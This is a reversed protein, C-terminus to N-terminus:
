FLRSMLGSPFATHPSSEWTPQEHCSPHDNGPQPESHPVPSPPISSSAPRFILDSDQSPPFSQDLTNPNAAMRPHSHSITVKKLSFLPKYMKQCCKVVSSWTHLPHYSPHLWTPDRPFSLPSSNPSLTLGARWLLIVASSMSEPSPLPCSMRSLSPPFAPAGPLCLSLQIHSCMLQWSWLNHGSHLAPVWTECTLCM